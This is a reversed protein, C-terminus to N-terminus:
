ESTPPTPDPAPVATLLSLCEEGFPTLAWREGGGGFTQYSLDRVMGQATLRSILADLVTAFESHHAVIDERKWGSLNDRREGEATEETVRRPDGSGIIEMLKVEFTEIATVGRVKVFEADVAAQDRVGRGLSRGLAVIKEELPTEAAAQVVQAMLTLLEPSEEITSTLRSVSVGAESAAESIAAQARQQRLAGIRSLMREVMPDAFDKAVAAPIALVPYHTAVVGILASTTAAVVAGKPVKSEIDEENSM